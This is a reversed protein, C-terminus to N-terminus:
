SKKKVLKPKAHHGFHQQALEFCGYIVAEEPRKALRIPPIPVLPTEYRKLETDLYDSFKAYYQGVGGGLVIVEPQIVAILDILGIAINRAIIKWASEDTIDQAKKGFRKFIAKGSAFTEWNEIKGDHELMLHGGESDEFSPDIVGNIIIGTGIGTSITVYLVKKFEKIIVKAESLGALKADNEVVVPADVIREMDAQIPVDRWPLNGFALARGHLRDIRGPAAIGAAQYNVIKLFQLYHRLDALFNDYDRPTPFKVTDLLKGKDDFSALLTKTGGIDVALYM